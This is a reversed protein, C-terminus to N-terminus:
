ILDAKVARGPEKTPAIMDLIREQTERMLRLPSLDRWGKKGESQIPIDGMIDSFDGDFRSNAQKKYERIMQNTAYLPKEANNFRM